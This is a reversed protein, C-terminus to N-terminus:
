FIVNVNVSWLIPLQYIKDNTVRNVYFINRYNYANTAGAGLEMSCNESFIFRRKINLDLRHYDPLQGRNLTDLAIGLEENIRIIEGNVSQVYQLRPYMGRTKTFPFGSGYNWRIDAQWVKRKGFAYSFLFNINHRRDFHTRYIIIGDNRTVWNLSYVFNINFGKKEYKLNIDGGYAIGTELIFEKDFDFVQYRNINTLQSFNKVYGEVNLSVNERLDWEMGLVAHQGRQLSNTVVSGNLTDGVVYEPVTLFGYFLNVVDQDSTASMLNQSYLGAALKIRFDNTVNYKAALRPEPSAISQSAYLHLRLGPEIVFKGVDGAEGTKGFTWKYKMYLGLENNFNRQQINWGVVSVFHYDTWTAAVEVGYAFTNKGHLYSFDMGMNLEDIKSYREPVILEDLTMKYASYAVTGEAIMNMSSPMFLFSTGVGWSNWKYTAIEPYRVGDNFSFGFFNIRSGSETELAIKGYGDFYNYPLGEANAYRYFLKSSQELYSGKLSLLFSVSTNDNQENKKLLPGELLLKSSFTSIDAKGCFRKTNGSRTTVDIISSIRGGYEAGFGATYVQVNKLIDVDFVSFLGISHFPNYVVMGDLLVKNQIPTGGRIYLQGGQDGTFVVGPIVQLYQALDPTGGVSPFRRIEKPSIDIVSVGTQTQAIIKKAKVEFSELQISTKSLYYRGSSTQKDSITIPVLLSDYGICSIRMEYDGKPIKSIIFIGNDDTIAGINTGRIFVTAYSVPEGTANDFVVGRLTGTQASLENVVVLALVLLVIKRIKKYM